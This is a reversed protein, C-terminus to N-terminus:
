YSPGIERLSEQRLRLKACKSGGVTLPRLLSEEKRTPWAPSVACEVKDPWCGKVHEPPFWRGISPKVATRKHGQSNNSCTPRKGGLSRVTTGYVLARISVECTEDDIVVSVASFFAFAICSTGASSPSVNSRPPDGSEPVPKALTGRTISYATSAKKSRPVPSASM